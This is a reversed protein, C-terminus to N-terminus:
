YLAGYLFWTGIGIFLLGVGSELFRQPIWQSLADGVLVALLTSLVLALSSALFVTLRNQEGTSLGLVTLQTKDALEALFVLGAIYAFNKVDIV